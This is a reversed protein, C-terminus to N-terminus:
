DKALGFISRIHGADLVGKLKILAERIEDPNKARILIDIYEKEFFPDVKIDINPPLACEFRIDKLSKELSSLIPHTLNKLRTKLEYANDAGTVVSFDIMSNKVKIIHLMRLIERMASETLHVPGLIDIIRARDEPVFKFLSEANQMSLGKKLIFNKMAEDANAINRLRAIIKEHRDLSLFSMTEYIEERAIGTNLMKEICHAKEIINLSRGANDHISRLLASKEDIDVIICPVSSLGLSLAAKLRKFGTVVIYPLEALLMLPQIIGIRKVSALLLDDELLYSICFRRDSVNIQSVPINEM